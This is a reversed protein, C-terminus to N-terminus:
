RMSTYDSFWKKGDPSGFIDDWRVGEWDGFNVELLRSDPLIDNSFLEALRLCRKLPSSYILDFEIGALQSVVAPYESCFTDAVDIDTQGYCIGESMATRTHRVLCLFEDM